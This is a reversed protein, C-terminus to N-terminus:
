CPSASRRLGFATLIRTVPPPPKRPEWQDLPERGVTVGDEGRPLGVVVQGAPVVGFPHEAVGLRLSDEVECGLDAADARVDRVGPAVPVRVQHHARVHELQAPDVLTSFSTMTPVTHAYGM